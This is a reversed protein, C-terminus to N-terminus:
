AYPLNWSSVLTSPEWRQSNAYKVMFRQAGSPDESGEAVGFVTQRSPRGGPDRPCLKDVM